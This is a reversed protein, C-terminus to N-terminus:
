WRASFDPVPRLPEAAPADQALGPAASEPSAGAAGPFGLKKSIMDAAARTAKGFDAVRQDPMRQAPAAVSLMALVRGEFDFVPAAVCRVGEIREENDIVYGRRRSAELELRMGEITTITRPTVAPMGLSLIREVENDPMYALAAKGTATCYAPRRAGVGAHLGIPHPGAVSDIGVAEAGVLVALSVLEGTYTCLAQLHERAVERLDFGELLQGSLTLVQLGLRYRGTDASRTAYGRACFTTLFRLLTTRHMRLENALETLTVGGAPARALHELVSLGKNLTGLFSASGEGRAPKPETKM